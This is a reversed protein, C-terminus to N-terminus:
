VQESEIHYSNIHNKFMDSCTWVHRFKNLIMFIIRISVIRSCTLVPFSFMTFYVLISYIARPLKKKNLVSFHNRPDSRALRAILFLIVSIMSLPSVWLALNPVSLEAWFVVFVWFSIQGIQGIPGFSQSITLFLSWRADTIRAFSSSAHHRSM